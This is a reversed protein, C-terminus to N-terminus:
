SGASVAVRAADTGIKAVDIMAIGDPTNVILRDGEPSFANDHFYLTSGGADGTLRVVRHGTDADIWDKPPAEQPQWLLGAALLAILVLARMAPITCREVGPRRSATATPTPYPIRGRCESNAVPPEGPSVAGITTPQEEGSRQASPASFEAM